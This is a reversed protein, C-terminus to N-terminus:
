FKDVPWQLQMNRERGRQTCRDWDEKIYWSKLTTVANVWYWRDYSMYHFIIRFQDALEETSAATTTMEPEDESM